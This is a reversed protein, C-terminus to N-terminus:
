VVIRFQRAAVGCPRGAGASRRRDQRSGPALLARRLSLIHLASLRNNRAKCALNSM